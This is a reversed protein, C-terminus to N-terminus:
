VRFSLDLGWTSMIHTHTHTHTYLTCTRLVNQTADTYSNSPFIDKTVYKYIITLINGIDTKTTVYKILYYLKWAIPLISCNIPM